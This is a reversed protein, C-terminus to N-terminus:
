DPGVLIDDQKVPGDVCERSRHHSPGHRASSSSLTGVEAWAEVRRSKLPLRMGPGSLDSGRRRARFRSDHLENHTALIKGLKFRQCEGAAIKVRLVKPTEDMM